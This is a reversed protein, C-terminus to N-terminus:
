AALDADIVLDASTAVQRSTLINEAVETVYAEHLPYKFYRLWARQVAARILEIPQDAYLQHLGDWERVVNDACRHVFMQVAEDQVDGRPNFPDFM